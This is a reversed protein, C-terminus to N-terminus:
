LCLLFYLSWLCLQVYGFVSLLVKFLVILLKLVNRGYTIGIVGTFVRELTILM